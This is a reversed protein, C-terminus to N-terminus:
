SKVIEAAEEVTNAIKTTPPGGNGTYPQWAKVKSALMTRSTGDVVKSLRLHSNSYFPGNGGKKTAPDFVFWTEMNFGHNTAYLRARGKGPDRLIGAGPDSPCQDIPVRLADIVM